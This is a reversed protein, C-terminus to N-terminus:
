LCFILSDKELQIKLQLICKKVPINTYLFQIDFNAQLKNKMNINKIKNLLNGSTKLHSPNITGLLPTLIKTIHKVINPPPM